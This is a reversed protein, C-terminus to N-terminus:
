PTLQKLMFSRLKAAGEYAASAQEPTDYQGLWVRKGHLRMKAAWKEGQRSVGPYGSTNNSQLGRGETQHQIPSLLQLNEYRTDLTDDNCFGVMKEPWAGTMWAVAVTQLYHKQGDISIQRYRRGDGVGVICGAPSGAAASGSQTKWTFDGTEGNYDLVERLRAPTLSSRSM